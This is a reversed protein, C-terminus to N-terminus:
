IWSGTNPKFTGIRVSKAPGPTMKVYTVNNNIKKTSVEIVVILTRNYLSLLKEHVLQTALFTYFM